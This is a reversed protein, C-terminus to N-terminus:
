CNSVKKQDQNSLQNKAFFAVTVISFYLDIKGYVLTDM